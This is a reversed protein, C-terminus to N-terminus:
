VRTYTAKMYEQWEGKDDQGYSTVIRKDEAVTEMVDRYLATKGDVVMDPGEGDLTMTKGDESLTGKFTWLHSSMSGFWCGRYEKFSVDYGITKVMTFEGGGPMSGKGEGVAWLGGLSRVSETGESTLTPGGPEMAFESEIRWEGVLGQLWAHEAVPKTGM